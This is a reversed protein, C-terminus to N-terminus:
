RLDPSRKVLTESWHSKKTTPPPWGTGTAARLCQTVGAESLKSGSLQEHGLVFVGSKGDLSSKRGQTMILKNKCMKFFKPVCGGLCLENAGTMTKLPSPHPLFRHGIHIIAACIGLVINRVAGESGATFPFYGHGAGSSEEQGTATGLHGVTTLTVM